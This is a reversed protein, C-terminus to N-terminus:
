AHVGALPRALTRELAAIQQMPDTLERARAPGAEGLHRRRDPDDILSQLAARLAARDAPPVLVGCRPTVIERAGGADVTVVPRGAYLAEAFAVGFPEPAVNPQCHIDAARMLRYVDSREGLFRVRDAIGRTTALAKLRRDLDAEAPRQVGGAIWVMWDGTLQSAAELLEEHGKWAELRCAILIVTARESAGLERRLATRDDGSSTPPTVPAYVVEVPVDRLWGHIADATFHSNCIVLDPPHRLVRHETWHTGDLADHAWLARRHQAVPAALAFAWPSHCLVMDFATAALVGRLRRRARWVTTPRSFRVDGLMHCSAGREQLEDRLRGGFCLAFDHQWETPGSAIAVLIREVGGYLNGAAVHLVRM